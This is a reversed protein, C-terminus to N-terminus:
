WVKGDEGIFNDNLPNSFFSGMYADRGDLFGYEGHEWGVQFFHEPRELKERAEKPLNALQYAMLLARKRHEHYGPVGSIALSGIGNESYAKEIIELMDDSNQQLLKSYPIQIINVSRLASSAFRRLTLSTNYM